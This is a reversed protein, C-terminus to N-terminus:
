NSTLSTLRVCETSYQQSVMATAANGIVTKDLASDPYVAACTGLMETAYLAASEFGLSTLYSLSAAFFNQHYSAWSCSQIGIITCAPQNPATNAGNVIVWNTPGLEEVFIGPHGVGSTTSTTTYKAATYPYTGSTASCSSSCYTYSPSLCPIPEPCARIQRTNPWRCEHPRKVAVTTGPLM